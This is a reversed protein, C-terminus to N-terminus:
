NLSVDRLNQLSGNAMPTFGSVGPATATYGYSAFLWVWAANEELQKGVQTYIENRKAM